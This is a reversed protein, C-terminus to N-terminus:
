LRNRCVASSAILSALFNTHGTGLLDDEDGSALKVQGLVALDPWLDEHKLFHYKTRLLIDGIGTASGGSTVTRSQLSDMQPDASLPFSDGTETGFRNFSDPRLALITARSEARARTHVIPLVGGVDWRNTLGYRAYFAYVDQELEIDYDILVDECLPGLDSERFDPDGCDGEERGAVIERAVSDSVVVQFDDLRTGEFRKYDLRTYSFALNLKQAGITEAREAILPGLSETTRVPTGTAFDFTYGSVASNLAFPQLGAALQSGLDPPTFQAPVIIIIRELLVGQPYLDSLFDALGARTPSPALTAIGAALVTAMFRKRLATRTM